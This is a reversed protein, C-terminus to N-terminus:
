GGGACMAVFAKAKAVKTNAWRFLSHEIFSINNEFFDVDFFLDDSSLAALQTASPKKEVMVAVARYSPLIV